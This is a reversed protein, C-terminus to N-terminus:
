RFETIENEPEAGLVPEIPTEHYAVDLLGQARKRSVGTKHAAGPFRRIGAVALTGLEYLGLPAWLFAFDRHPFHATSGLRDRCVGLM